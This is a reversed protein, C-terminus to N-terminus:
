PVARLRARRSPSLWTASVSCCVRLSSASASLFSVEIASLWTFTEAGERYFVIQRQPSPKAAADAVLSIPEILIAAFIRRQAAFVVLGTAINRSEPVVRGNLNETM